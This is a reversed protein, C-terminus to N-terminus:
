TVGKLAVVAARVVELLRPDDAITQDISSVMNAFEQSGAAEAGWERQLISRLLPLRVATLSAEVDPDTHAVLSALEKQLSAVDAEAETSPNEEVSASTGKNKARTGLKRLADLLSPAQTPRIPDM